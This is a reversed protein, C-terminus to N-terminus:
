LFRASSDTRGRVFFLVDRFLVILCLCDCCLRLRPLGVIGPDWVIGRGHALGKWDPRGVVPLSM